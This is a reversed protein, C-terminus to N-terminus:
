MEQTGRSSGWRTSCTVSNWVIVMFPWYSHSINQSALGLEWFGVRAMPSNSFLVMSIIHDGPWIPCSAINRFHLCPPGGQRRLIPRWKNSPEDQGAVVGMWGWCHYGDRQRWIQRDLEVHLVGGKAAEINLSKCELTDLGPEWGPLFKRM